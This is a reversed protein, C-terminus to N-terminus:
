MSSKSKPKGRPISANSISDKSRNLSKIPTNKKLHEIIKKVLYFAERKTIRRNIFDEIEINSISMGLSSLVNKLMKWNESRRRVSVEDVYQSLNITRPSHHSIIEAVIRGNSFANVLNNKIINIRRQDFGSSMLLEVLDDDPIQFSDEM